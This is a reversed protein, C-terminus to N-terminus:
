ALWPLGFWALGFPVAFWGKRAIALVLGKNHALRLQCCAVTENKNKAKQM